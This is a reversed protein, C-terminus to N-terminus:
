QKAVGASGQGASDKLSVLLFSSHTGLFDVVRRHTGAPLWVVDGDHLFSSHVGGLNVDLNANTLAVLVANEKPTEEVYDRGSSVKVVGVRIEDTEFYPVDDDGAEAAAKKEKATEQACNLAGAVIQECLNRATGQPKALEITVNRFVVGADTHVAHAFGGASYIVQGDQLTLRVGPKGTVDNEVNTAGLSVALYPLDHKHILTADLPPVSVTYVHVFDNLLVVQHHPEDALPVVQKAVASEEAALADPPAPNQGGPDPSSMSQGTPKQSTSGQRPAPSQTAGAPAGSNMASTGDDGAAAHISAKVSFYRDADLRPIEGPFAVGLLLACSLYSAPKM